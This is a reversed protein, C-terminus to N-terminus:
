LLEAIQVANQAAGKRLNDSVVWMNLASPHSIDERVRGVFVDPKGVVDFVMPIGQGGLSDQVVVGPARNLIEHAERATLKEKTEINVSQSHGSLVPVQVATASLEITSDLLIRRTEEAISMEKQTYGNPLLPSGQPIYPVCNFAVPYSFERCTLEDGELFERVQNILEELAQASTASVAECSSVVVRKVKAVADIPKLVLVLQITSCSPNTIIGKHKSLESKNVEPVVIPADPHRRWAGSLDILVCGSKEAQPALDKSVGTTSCLFAIDIGKLSRKKVSKIPLKEDKFPLYDNKESATDFLNICKVSIRREEIIQLVQRGVLTKAGVVAINKPPMNKPNRKKALSLHPVEDCKHAHLCTVSPSVPKGRISSYM